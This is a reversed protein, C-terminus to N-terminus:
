TKKLYYNITLVIDFLRLEICYYCIIKLQYITIVKILLLKTPSIPSDANHLDNSFYQKVAMANLFSLLPNNLQKRNSAYYNKLKHFIPYIMNYSGVNVSKYISQNQLLTSFLKYSLIDDIHAYDSIEHTCTMFNVIGKLNKLITGRNIEIIIKLRCYNSSHVEKM